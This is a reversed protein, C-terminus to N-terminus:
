DLQDSETKLETILAQYMQAMGAKKDLLLYEDDGVKEKIILENIKKEHLDKINKIFTLLDSIKNEVTPPRKWCKEEVTTCPWKVPEDEFGIPQTKACVYYNGDTDTKKDPCVEITTMKGVQDLINKKIGISQELLQIVSDAEASIKQVDPSVLKQIRGIASGATSQITPIGPTTPGLMAALMQVPTLLTTNYPEPATKLVEIYSLLINANTNEEDILSQLNFIVSEPTKSIQPNADNKAIALKAEETKLMANIKEKLKLPLTALTPMGTEMAKLDPDNTPACVVSFPIEITAEDGTIPDISIQDTPQGFEDSDYATFKIKFQSLQTKKDPSCLNIATLPANYDIHSQYKQGDEGTQLRPIVDPKLTIKLTRDGIACTIINASLIGGCGLGLVKKDESKSFGDAVLTSEAATYIQFILNPAQKYVELIYKSGERIETEGRKFTTSEILTNTPSRTLPQKSWWQMYVVNIPAPTGTVGVTGAAGFWTTDIPIDKITKTYDGNTTLPALGQDTNNKIMEGVGNYIAYELYKNNKEGGPYDQTINISINLTDGTAFTQMKPYTYTAAGSGFRIGSSSEGFACRFSLSAPDYRCFAPLAGAGGSQTITKEDERGKERTTSGEKWRYLLYVKDYRINGMGSGQMTYFVEQSLIENKKIHTPFDPPSIIIDKETECDCKGREFGDAERCKFGGSCKLHLELDADAGAAFGIGFHYVWTTLGSPKTAPNFAIFRRNAPEILSQSEIPIEEVAQDFATAVDFNWTGTFAWMCISNVLKKEVFVTKYAASDGYRGESTISMESGPATLAGLLDGAGSIGTRAGGTSFSQTFCTLVEYILDCAYQSIVAECVGAEGDGTILIVDICNKVANMINRWLKLYAIFTPFCICRISNFLGDNPRIIYEKEPNGIANITQQYLSQANVQACNTKEYGAAECLTPGFNSPVAQNQRYADIQGQQFFDTQFD